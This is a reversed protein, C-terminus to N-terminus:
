GSDVFITLLSRVGRGVDLTGSFLQNPPGSFGSVGGGGGRHARARCTCAAVQTVLSRDERLIAM